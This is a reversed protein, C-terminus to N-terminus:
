CECISGDGLGCSKWVAAATEADHLANHVGASPPRNLIHDRSELPDYGAAFLLSSLDLVPFPAQWKRDLENKMVCKMFLRAEVPYMVDAVAYAERSYKMWFDWVKELLEEENECVEYGGLVPLVNERTWSDSVQMNERRVGYYVRETINGEMDAAALGVALFEGYLGDSEADVFVLKNRM